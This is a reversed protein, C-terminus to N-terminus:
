IEVLFEVQTGKAENQEDYLDIIKVEMKTNNLKNLLGLREEVNKMGTPKHHKRRKNIEGAKIRGIGDDIISIKMLGAQEQEFKVLLMGKSQKPVIGHWIANELYPQLLMSPISVQDANISSDVEITYDLYKEFRFKELELYLKITEIEEKLSIFNHKSAELIRRILSSFIVLYLNANKDDKEVIFNQISNLSNFIFHPNMQSRVAKQEALITQRKLEERNRFTAVVMYVILFIISGIAVIMSIRFSLYQTFHKKIVFDFAVTNSWEGAYSKAKVVFSYKGPNLKPYRVSTNRTLYWENEYGELKYLYSAKQPNKFSKLRFNIEINNQNNNFIGDTEKFNKTLDNVRVSELRIEPFYPNISLSNPNFRVIGKNTALILNDGYRVIDNIENSPLGDWITFNRPAVEFGSQTDFTLESLGQNTGIWIKDGDAFISKVRHSILGKSENIFYAKKSKRDILAM